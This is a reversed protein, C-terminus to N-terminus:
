ESDNLADIIINVFHIYWIIIININNEINKEFTELDLKKQSFSYHNLTKFEKLSFISSVFWGLLVVLGNSIGNLDIM